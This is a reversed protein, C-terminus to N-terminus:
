KARPKQKLEIRMRATSLAERFVRGVCEDPGPAGGLKLFRELDLYHRPHARCTGHVARLPVAYRDVALHGKARNLLRDRGAGHERNPIRFAPPSPNVWPNYLHDGGASGCVPRLYRHRNPTQFNDFSYTCGHRTLTRRRSRSISSLRM